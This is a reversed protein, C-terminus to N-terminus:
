SCCLFCRLPIRQFSPIQRQFGEDPYPSLHLSYLDQPIHGSRGLSIYPTSLNAAGQYELSLCSPTAAGVPRDCYIVSRNAKRKGRFPEAWGAAGMMLEKDGM